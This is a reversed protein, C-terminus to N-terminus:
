LLNNMGSSRFTLFFIILFALAFVIYIVLYVWNTTLAVHLPQRPGAGGAAGGRNGSFSGGHSRVHEPLSILKRKDAEVVAEM